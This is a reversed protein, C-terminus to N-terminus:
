RNGSRVSVRVGVKKGQGTSKYPNETRDNQGRNESQLQSKHSNFLDSSRCVAIKRKFKLASKQISDLHIKVTKRDTCDAAAIGIIMKKLIARSRLGSKGTAPPRSM